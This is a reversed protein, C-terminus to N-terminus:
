IESLYRGLAERVLDPVSCNKAAALTLLREKVDLPVKTQVQETLPRDGKLPFRYKSGFDPNGVSKTM